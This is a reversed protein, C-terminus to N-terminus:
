SMGARSTPHKSDTAHNSSATSSSPSNSQKADSQVGTLVRGFVAADFLELIVDGTRLSARNLLPKSPPGPDIDNVEFGLQDRYLHLM